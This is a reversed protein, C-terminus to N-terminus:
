VEFGCSNNNHLKVVKKKYCSSKVRGESKYNYYKFVEYPFATFSITMDGEKIGVFLRTACHVIFM